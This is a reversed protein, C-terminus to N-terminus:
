SFYFYAGLIIAIVVVMKIMGGAGGEEPLQAPDGSERTRSRTVQEVVDKAESLDIGGTERLSKIAEIKHGADVASIVEDSIELDKYNV